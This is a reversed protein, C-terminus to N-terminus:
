LLDHQFAHAVAAARTEVAFKALINTVHTTATRHSIFLAEAIERNSRGEVLLRLVERERPTLRSRDADLASPMPSREAITLLRDVEAEIKARPMLRGATWAALYADHGVRQRATAEMRKYYAGNPLAVDVDFFEVAAAGILRAATESEGLITGLIAATTLYGLRIHHM